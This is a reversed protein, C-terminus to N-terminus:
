IYESGQRSVVKEDENGAQNLMGDMLIRPLQELDGLFKSLLDLPAPGTKDGKADAM